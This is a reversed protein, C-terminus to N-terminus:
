AHAGPQSSHVAFQSSSRARAESGQQVTLAEALILATGSFLLTDMIYNIADVMQDTGHAPGVMPAYIVIVVFAAVIGLWAAAERAWRNVLLLAGTVLLVAGVAYSWVQPVLAWPPALRELPVVPVHEPHLFHQIAFFIAVVAFAIRSPTILRAWRSAPPGASGALALLGSAFGCERLMLTWSFRSHVQAVVDPIDLMAVFTLLTLGALLSSWRVLRGSILSLATAIWAVGVLYAWFLRWPMYAPVMQSLGQAAALHLGGFTALPAAEFVRGLSIARELGPGHALERRRAVLGAALVVLGATSMTVVSRSFEL